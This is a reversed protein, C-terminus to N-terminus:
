CVEQAKCREFYAGSNNRKPNNNVAKALNAKKDIVMGAKSIEDECESFDVMLNRNVGEFNKGKIIVENGFLDEKEDESDELEMAINGVKLLESENKSNEQNMDPEVNVDKEQSGFPKMNMAFLLQEEQDM